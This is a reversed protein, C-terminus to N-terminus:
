WPQLILTHLSIFNELSSILIINDVMDHPHFRYRLTITPSIVNFMGFTTTVLIIKKCNINKTVYPCRM